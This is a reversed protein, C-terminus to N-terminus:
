KAVALSIALSILTTAALVALLMNSVWQTDKYSRKACDEGLHNVKTHVKVIEKRLELRLEILDERSVESYRSSEERVM